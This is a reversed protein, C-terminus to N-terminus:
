IEIITPEYAIEYREDVRAVNYIKTKNFNVCEHTGSHIHGCFVNKPQKELIDNTLESSGFPGYNTQISFDIQEDPIRPPSYTILIDLTEPINKFKEVLKIHDAEFAWIYNIIPVWPTGYIKLGKIEIEQDILLHVNESFRTKLSIDKHPFTKSIDLALDHNGPTIVFDIEPYKSTFEYFTTNIWKCQDYIGYKDLRKLPAFDGAIVVIDNGSPDLNNLQGHLDSIAFIKKM